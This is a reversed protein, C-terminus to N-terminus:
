PGDDVIAERAVAREDVAFTYMSTAPEAVFVVDTTAPGDDPIASGRLPRARGGRSRDVGRRWRQRVGLAADQDCKCPREGCPAPERDRRAVPLDRLLEDEAHVRDLRMHARQK